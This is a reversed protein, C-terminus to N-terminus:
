GDGGGWIEFAEGVIIAYGGVGREREGCKFLGCVICRARAEAM